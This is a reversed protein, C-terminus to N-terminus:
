VRVITLFWYLRNWVQCKIKRITSTGNEFSLCHCVLQVVQPTAAQAKQSEKARLRWCRGFWGKGKWKEQNKLWNTRTGMQTLYLLFLHRYSRHNVVAFVISSLVFNRTEYSNRQEPHEVGSSWYELHRKRAVCFAFRRHNTQDIPSWVGSFPMWSGFCTVPRWSQHKTAKHHSTSNLLLSPDLNTRSSPHESYRYPM